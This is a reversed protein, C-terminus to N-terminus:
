PELEVRVAKFKDEIEEPICGIIEITCLLSRAKQTCLRMQKLTSTSGVRTSLVRQQCLLSDDYQPLFKFVKGEWRFARLGTRVGVANCVFAKKGQLTGASGVKKVFPVNEGGKLTIDIFLVVNRLLM